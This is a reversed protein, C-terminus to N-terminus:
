LQFSLFAPIIVIVMVIGLMMIMPLLLKTTAQEAKRKIHAKREEQAQILEKKLAFIIENSGKRINQSLLTGFKLYLRNSCRKGLNEYAESESVGSELEQTLNKIEEYAYRPLDQTSSQYDNAIKLFAKRMTMGAGLYLVLQNMVVGYDLIMQEERKKLAVQLNQNRQLYIGISAVIILLFLVYNSHEREYSWSIPQEKYVIPLVVYELEQYELNADQIEKQLIQILSQTMDLEKPYVTLQFHYIREYEYYTSKVQITVVQGKADEVDKNVEGTRTITQYNNSSWENYFPYGEITSLFQLDKTIYNATENEGLMVKYLVQEYQEYWEQIEKETYKQESIVIPIDYREEGVEAVMTRESSGSRFVKNENFVRSSVMEKVYMTSALLTGIVIIKILLELTHIREEQDLEIVQRHNHLIFHLQKIQERREVVNNRSPLLEDLEYAIATLITKQKIERKRSRWWLWIFVVIICGYLVIM